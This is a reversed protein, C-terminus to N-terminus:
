EHEQVKNKLNLEEDYKQGLKEVTIDKNNEILKKAIESYKQILLLSDNFKGIKLVDVLEDINEKSIEMNYEREKIKQWM